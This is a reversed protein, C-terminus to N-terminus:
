DLGDCRSLFDAGVNDKGPIIRVRFSFSQLQLAWRTLRGNSAKMTDLYKLPRHDTELVFPRGYLYVYLKGLAWVVALCEKEVTAYRTETDNLKRSIYLIPKLHKDEEQLLVAGLGRDSADTRVVFEKTWDPLKLIPAQCLESKLRQFADEASKDWGIKNPASKRVRDTLPLAIEAFNQIFKRYYGVLGLFSQMEKKTTPLKANKIKTLNSKEPHLEGRGVEHGFYEVKTLALRCKTPRASLNAEQFRTFFERLIGNSGGM